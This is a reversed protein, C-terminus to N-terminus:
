EIHLDLAATKAAGGLCLDLKLDDEVAEGEPPTLLPESLRRRRRGGVEVEEPLEDTVLGEEEESAEAEAEDEARLRTERRPARWSAGAM